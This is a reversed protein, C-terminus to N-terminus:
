NRERYRKLEDLLWDQSRMEEKGPCKVTYYKGSMTSKTASYKIFDETTKIDDRFYDYKRQIHSLAKKGDHEDGNRVMICDSQEVFDLLHQVEPKQQEPVDAPLPGAFALLIFPFLKKV